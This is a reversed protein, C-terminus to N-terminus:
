TGAGETEGMGRDKGGCDFRENEDENNACLPESPRAEVPLVLDLATLLQPQWRALNATTGLRPFQISDGPLFRDAAEHILYAHKGLPAYRELGLLQNLFEIRHQPPPTMVVLSGVDSGEKVPEVAPNHPANPRM